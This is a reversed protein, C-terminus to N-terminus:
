FAALGLQWHCNRQKKVFNEPGFELAVDKQEWAVSDGSSSQTESTVTLVEAADAAQDLAKIKGIGPM